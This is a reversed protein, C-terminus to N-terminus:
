IYDSEITQSATTLHVDDAWLHTQEANPAVLQGPGCVLSSTSGCAPNTALVSTTTFGFKTPNQSVYTFLSNIDAPVFNVGAATLSSWMAAGYTQSEPFGVVGAATLHGTADVLRAYENLNLVVITRAGDAQLTAVSTALTASWPKMYTDYLQQPSLSTQQTQMWFLENAGTSIMYLAGPNASQHVATLYNSIQAVTPVNNFFGNRYGDAPTTPVSQASGNAYNTGGGGPLTVPLASLGFRAALLKTSVLGPGVFAGSAGAAVASAIGANVATASGRGLVFLGGTSSYRFYGSDMTSDGFGVFQDLGAAYATDFANVALFALLASKIVWCTGVACAQPSVGHCRWGTAFTWARRM